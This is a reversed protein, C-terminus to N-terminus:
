ALRLGSGEEWVLGINTQGGVLNRLPQLIAEKRWGSMLRIDPANEGALLHRHLEGVEQRNTVLNSDISYGICLCQTVAWLADAAFRESPSQEVQKHKPLASAPLALARQTSEVIQAGHAQEVPRPLGRVRVLKEVSKVPSRALDVLVEDRVLSRPPVNHDRAAGDRWITLERLVALGQPTLSTAGRISVTSRTKVCRTANRGRGNLMGLVRCSQVWRQGSPRYIACTM